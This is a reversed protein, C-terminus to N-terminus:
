RLYFASLAHKPLTRDFCKQIDYGRSWSTETGTAILEEFPTENSRKTSVAVNWRWNMEDVAARTRKIPVDQTTENVGKKQACQRPFLCGLPLGAPRIKSLKSFAQLLDLGSLLIYIYINKKRASLLSTRPPGTSASYKTEYNNETECIYATPVFACARWGLAASDKQKHSFKNM